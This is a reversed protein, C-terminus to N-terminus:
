AQDSGRQGPRAKGDKRPQRRERLALLVRRHPSPFALQELEPLRKWRFERQREFSGVTTVLYATLRIRFRTVAHTFQCLPEITLPGRGFRAAAMAEVDAARLPRSRKGTTIEDNPFEWLHANRSGDPRQRVAFRGQRGVVFVAIRQETTRVRPAKRPLEGVRGTRFAWCFTRVPCRRCDPGRPTCITAGLEMLAQNLSGCPRQRQPYNRHALGVLEQASRWLRATAARSGVPATMGQLRALVRSVNGDVVPTAQEFAISCIAGATYRGIGPLSLVTEFRDPFRGGFETVVVRAAAQLHQARRYYGLGEWLKLVVALSSQALANVDPLAKMWREWFPIVTQVQTQQLMVESIWIAYPDRTRRWPLARAQVAFWAILAAAIREPVPM